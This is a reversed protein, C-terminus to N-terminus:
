ETLGVGAALVSSTSRARAYTSSNKLAEGSSHTAIKVGFAVPASLSTPSANVRGVFLPAVAAETPPTFPSPRPLALPRDGDLLAKVTPPLRSSNRDHAPIERQHSQAPRNRPHTPSNRAPGGPLERPARDPDAHCGCEEWGRRWGIAGSRRYHDADRDGGIGRRLEGSLPRRARRRADALRPSSAIPGSEAARNFSCTADSSTESSQPDKPLISRASVPILRASRFWWQILRRRGPPQLLLELDHLCRLDHVAAWPRTAARRAM